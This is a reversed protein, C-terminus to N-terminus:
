GAVAARLHTKFISAALFCVKNEMPSVNHSGAKTTGNAVMWVLQTVYKVKKTRKTKDKIREPM